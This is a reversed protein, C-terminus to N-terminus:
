FSILISMQRVIGKILMVRSELFVLIGALIVLTGFLTNACEPSLKLGHPVIIIQEPRFYFVDNVFGDNRDLVDDIICDLHEHRVFIM